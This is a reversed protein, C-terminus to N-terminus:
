DYSSRESFGLNKLRQDSEIAATDLSSIIAPCGPKKPRDSRYAANLAASAGCFAHHGNHIELHRASKQYRRNPSAGAAHTDVEGDSKKFAHHPDRSGASLPWVRQPLIALPFAHEPAISLPSRFAHEVLHELCQGLQCLAIGDSAHDVPRHGPYM